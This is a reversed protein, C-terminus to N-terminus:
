AKAPVYVGDYQVDVGVVLPLAISITAVWGNQTFGDVPVTKSGDGATVPAHAAPLV